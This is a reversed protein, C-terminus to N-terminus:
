PTVPTHAPEPPAQRADLERVAGRRIIEVVPAGSRASEARLRALLDPSLYLSLPIMRSM